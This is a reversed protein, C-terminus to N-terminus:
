RATAPTTKQQQNGFLERIIPDEDTGYKAQPITAHWDRALKEAEAIQAPSMRGELEDREDAAGSDGAAAALNLWMHARVVDRLVGIGKQYLYGLNRQAEAYGQNAADEYWKVAEVKSERVGNGYYYLTGLLQEARADGQEALPRLLQLATAYDDKRGKKMAASADEIDATKEAEAIQAPTMKAKLEALLQVARADGQSALRRFLMLATTLDGTREATLADGIARAADREVQAARRDELYKLAAADDSTPAPQLPEAFAAGAIALMFLAAMTGRLLTRHHRMTLPDSPKSLNDM